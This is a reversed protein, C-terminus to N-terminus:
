EKAAKSMAIVNRLPVNPLLAEHSPSVIFREGFLERLRLVEVRVEEPTGFPLLQQTDVGGLFVLDNKYKAALSKADMNRALAQLPHLIQVGADILRPIVRDISGCSHMAVALGAKQVTAIIRKIYPLLFDDFCEVSVMLDLQTGVDNGFFGADLDNKALSLFRRNTEVYFDVVRETVAHVVKPDTHMKVFYNEMGFFDSVVHFFPCWMGGFIALGHERALRACELVGTFDLHKPDPWDFAEVEAVDECEAFVGADGLGTRGHPFCDWMPKGDPHRWCNPDLEPSIWIMDSGIKLNFAVEATDTQSSKLMSRSKKQNEGALQRAEAIGLAAHYLTKTEDAPHGVWFANAGTREGKFAARILPKGTIM